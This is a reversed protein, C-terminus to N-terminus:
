SRGGPWPAALEALAAYDVKAYLSTSLTSRHRLVQGVGGLGVGARLMETAATHRLRHARIAPLGARVSASAVVSSVASATLARHPALVRTFVKTSSCRPRGRCLWGAVAEGVDVPVPLREARSGKGRVLIEGARWDLDALELNAVEGCRLGLRVLLTLIAYDRRGVATRRDCAALLATVQRHDIGQPLSALRWRPGSPVAWVLEPVRGEIHLFRLLSRLRTLGCKASGPGRQACERLAFQTIELPALEALGLEGDADVRPDLFRRAFSVYQKATSGAFGREQLLFRAYDALLRELADAPESTVAPAVGLDRLHELLPAMARPSLLHRHGQSRRAGLFEQVRASTLADPGLENAALWRSAHAMLELQSRASFSTYGQSVLVAGFTDVYPKLPGSIRVRPPQRTMAM